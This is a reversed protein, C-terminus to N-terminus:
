RAPTVIMGALEPALSVAVADEDLSIAAMVVEAESEIDVEEDEVLSSDELPEGDPDAVAAVVEDEDPLRRVVPKTKVM